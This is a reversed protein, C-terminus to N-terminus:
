ATAGAIFAEILAFVRGGTRDGYVVATAAHESDAEAMVVRGPAPKTRSLPHGAAQVDITGRHLRVGPPPAAIPAEPGIVHPALFRGDPGPESADLRCVIRTLGTLKPRMALSAPTPQSVLRQYPVGELVAVDALDYLTFFDHKAPDADRYRWAALIGPVTLREPVHERSHWDEYAGLAEPAVGNWLALFATGRLRM